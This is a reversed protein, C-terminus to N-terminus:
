GDDETAYRKNALLKDVLARREDRLEELERIAERAKEPDGGTEKHIAEVLPTILPAIWNTFTELDNM